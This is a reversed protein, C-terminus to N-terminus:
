THLHYILDLHNLLAVESLPGESIPVVERCPVFDNAGYHGKNPPEVTYYQLLGKAIEYSRVSFKKLNYKAQMVCTYRHPTTSWQSM